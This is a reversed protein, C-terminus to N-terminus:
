KPPLHARVGPTRPTPNAKGYKMLVQHAKHAYERDLNRCGQRRHREAEEAIVRSMALERQEREAQLTELEAEM